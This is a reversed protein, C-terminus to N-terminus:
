LLKESEIQAVHVWNVGEWWVGKLDMKINDEWICRSRELQKKGELREAVTRCSNRMKEMGAVHGAWRMRRSIIVKIINPSAYL